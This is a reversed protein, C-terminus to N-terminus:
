GKGSIISFAMVTSAFVLIVGAAHFFSEYDAFDFVFPKDYFTTSIVSSGSATINSNRIVGLIPIGSAIYQTVHALLGDNKETVDDLASDYTNDAPLTGVKGKLESSDGIADVIKQTNINDNTGSKIQNGAITNLTKDINGLYKNSENGVGILGKTDDKIAGLLPLTNEEPTKTPDIVPKEAGEPPPDTPDPITPPPVDLIETTKCEGNIWTHSKPCEPAKCIQGNDEVGITGPQLANGTCPPVCESNLYTGTSCDPDLPEPPVKCMEPDGEESGIIYEGPEGGSSPPCYPVCKTGVFEGSSCPESCSPPDGVIFSTGEPCSQCGGDIMVEFEGCSDPDCRPPDSGTAFHTDVPCSQCDGDIMVEFEGCSDPDCRPPDAGIVFHTDVPCSQCVGDIRLQFEPCSDPDCRPPDAGIVFHTDTPCYQCVGDIKIQFELCGDDPPCVSDIIIVSSSYATANATYTGKLTKVNNPWEYINCEENNQYQIGGGTAMIDERNTVAGSCSNFYINTTQVYGNASGGISTCEISHYVSSFSLSPLFLFFAMVFFGILFIKKM